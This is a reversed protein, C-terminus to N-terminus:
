CDGSGQQFHPWEAPFTDCCKAGEIDDIRYIDEPTMYHTSVWKESCCKPGAVTHPSKQYLWLKENRGKQKQEFGTGMPLFLERGDSSVRRETQIGLPLLTRSTMADEPGTEPVAWVTHSVNGHVASGLRDLAGKTLIIGTGGSYYSRNMDNGPVFQRGFYRAEAPDFRSLFPVLNEWVVYTDDDAKIFFDAAQLYHKYVHMWALKTKKFIMSRSEPQGLDLVVTPLDLHQETTMFLLVTCHRGWTRNVAVARNAHTKPFTLIWCLVKPSKGRHISADHPPQPPRSEAILRNMKRSTNRRPLAWLQRCNHHNTLNDSCGETIVKLMNVASRSLCDGTERNVLVGYSKHRGTRYRFEWQMTDKLAGKLPCDAFVAAGNGAQLCKTGGAHSIQLSFTSTSSKEEHLSVRQIHQYAGEFWTGRSTKCNWLTAEWANAPNWDICRHGLLSEITVPTSQAPNYVDPTTSNGISKHNSSVVKSEESDRRDNSRRNVPLHMGAVRGHLEDRTFWVEATDANVRSGSDTPDLRAPLEVTTESVDVVSHILDKFADGAIAVM